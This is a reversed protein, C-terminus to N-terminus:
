TMLSLIREDESECISKRAAEIQEPTPYEHASKEKILKGVVKYVQDDPVDSMYVSEFIKSDSDQSM